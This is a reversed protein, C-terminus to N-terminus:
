SANRKLWYILLAGVPLNRSFWERSVRSYSGQCERGLSSVLFVLNRSKQGCVKESKQRSNSDRYWVDTLCWRETVEFIEGMRLEIWTWVMSRVHCRTCRIIMTPMNNYCLIQYKTFHFFAPQWVQRTHRMPIQDWFHDDHNGRLAHFGNTLIQDDICDFVTTNTLPGLRSLSLICSTLLLPCVAPTLSTPLVWLPKQGFHPIRCWCFM